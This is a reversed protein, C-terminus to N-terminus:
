PPAGNDRTIRDHITVHVEKFEPQLSFAFRAFFDCLPALPKYSRKLVISCPIQFYKEGEVKVEVEVEVEKV